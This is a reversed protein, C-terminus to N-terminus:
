RMDPELIQIWTMSVRLKVLCGNADQLISQTESASDFDELNCEIDAIDKFMQISGDEWTLTLPFRLEYKPANMTAEVTIVGGAFGPM